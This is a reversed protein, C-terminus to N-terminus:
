ECIPEQHHFDSAVQYLTNGYTDVTKVCGCKDCTYSTLIDEDHGERTAEGYAHQSNRFINIIDAKTEELIECMIRESDDQEGKRLAVLAFNKIVTISDEANGNRMKLTFARDDKNEPIPAPTFEISYGEKILQLLKNLLM